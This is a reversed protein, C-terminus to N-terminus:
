PASSSPRWPAADAGDVSSIIVPRTKRTPTTTTTTRPPPATRAPATTRPRRTRRPPPRPRRRSVSRSSSPISPIPPSPPPPTHSSRLARSPRPTPARAKERTKSKERPIANSRSRTTRALGLLPAPRPARSARPTRVARRRAPPMARAGRPARPPSRPGPPPVRAGSIQRARRPADDDSRSSFQGRSRTTMRAASEASPARFAQAPVLHLLGEKSRQEDTRSPRRRARGTPKRAM